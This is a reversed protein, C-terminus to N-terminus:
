RRQLGVQSGIAGAALGAVCPPVGAWFIVVLPATALPVVVIAYVAGTVFGGVLAGLLVTVAREKRRSAVGFRIGIFSAIVSGFAGLVVVFLGIGEYDMHGVTANLALVTAFGSATGVVTGAATGAFFGVPSEGSKTM